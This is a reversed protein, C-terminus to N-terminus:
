MCSVWNEKLFSRVEGTTQHRGTETNVWVDVGEIMSASTKADLIHENMEGVDEM